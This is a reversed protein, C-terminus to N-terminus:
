SALHSKRKKLSASCMACMTIGGLKVHLAEFQHPLEISIHM